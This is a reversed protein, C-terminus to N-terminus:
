PWAPTQGSLTIVFLIDEIKGEGLMQRIEESNPLALEWKGIPPSGIMETWSPANGRRTSIVGDSSTAPGGLSIENGDETTVLLHLHAVPVEFDMGNTRAFLMVIHQIKLDDLNPPFDERKIEFSVAIPSEEKDPDPPNNLYYWQDAFEQRFSFPRDAEFSRDLGQIVQQRHAFSHLATYEVTILVDAITNFDFANAARPMQLEWFTDVGMSEFPLLMEGETQLEFLGTANIPSTFAVMEPDRRVVITQFTNGGIVVRSIGSNILTARIGQTPPVLAIVSTRVRKILRLYHGPFSRDFLDMPTAFTLVGTERFRQFEAPALRALSFTQSLQLKRRNTEFAYQDLQYIDQLLRASGTLGRRDPTSGDMGTTQTEAPIQWYDTQIFSPPTEQREFGLQYQALQALATAQQLFYSYVHGLVGSMWDYLEANTFKQSLFDVTASAHNQQIGAIVHEQDAVKVHDKAIRTQRLGTLFDSFALDKQFFWEQERREYSAWTQLHQIKRSRAAGFASGFIPIAEALPGLLDSSFGSELAETVLTHGQLTKLIEMETKSKGEDLLSQYHNMQLQARERQLEALGVNDKAETLRLKQLKVGAGALELDQKAKMLNYNEADLKELAALFSAEIQQAIAVFQKTREILVSYRYPTPRFTAAKPIVLRGGGGVVPLFAGIPESEPVELASQRETGAINRGSRLKFLNLEAQLRLAQVVPNPPFPDISQESSRQQMEPLDLLELASVYLARARPLSEPTDQTFEADAFALFCQVLSMISFRTYANARKKAIDHPNFADLLWDNLNREFKTEINKGLELGYYIKRRDRKNEGDIPMTPLNYAYITQFWDLAALFQGSKQLALAMLMPVFYFIEQLYNPVKQLETNGFLEKVFERRDELQTNSFQETIQFSSNRLEIPLKEGIEKRLEDLHKQAETRALSPTLRLNDRLRDVLNWFADTPYKLLDQESPQANPPRRERLSPLLYNEPYGFVLIAARWTAYAGMWQWEEDFEAETYRNEGEEVEDRVNLRWDVVSNTGLVPEMAEFRQTRLSFHISQLTEIAQLVRTTLQTGSARMDIALEQTLRNTVDLSDTAAAIAAILADRLPPLTEAETAFVASKLAQVVTQEQEIRSSLIEEWSRREAQTARWPLMEELSLSSPSEPALAFHDPGLILNQQREETRWKAYERLKRVHVLIAFVDDWEEDMVTDTDISALERIRMLYLFPQLGLQLNNLEPEIANGQQHKEALEALDEIPVEMVQSVVTDFQELDTAQDNRMAKIQELEERVWNQREKFRDNALNGRLDSEVILDPDIVPVPTGVDTRPLDDQERWIARLSQKQWSLLELEQVVREELPNRNFNALGFLRELDAEAIQDPNIFLRDLQDPRPTLIIGLRSALGKRTEEDEVRALRIEESTVGLHRLISDYAALRYTKEAEPPPTLSHDALYKRLVEICLRVQTVRQNVVQRIEPKTLDADFPQYFTDTLLKRDIFSGSDAIVIRQISFDCLDQLYVVPSVIDLPDVPQFTVAVNLGLKQGGENDAHDRARVTITHKGPSPLLISATWTSWDGPAKPIASEFQGKNDLDWEVVKVGTQIDSATGGMEVTVGGDMWSFTSGSPPTTIELTPGTVDKVIILTTKRIENGLTDTAHVTVQHNGLSPLAVDAHWQSWTITDKLATQFSDNGLMWEVKSVGAKADSAKGKITTAYPPLSTVPEPPSIELIPPELDVEVDISSNATANPPEAQAFKATVRATIKLSGSTSRTRTFSWSTWPKTGTGKPTAKKFSGNDFKIEVKTISEDKPSINTAGGIPLETILDCKATGKVTIDRGVIATELPSQINVRPDLKKQVPM